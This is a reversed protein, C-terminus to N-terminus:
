PFLEAAGGIGSRAGYSQKEGPKHKIKNTTARENLHDDQYMTRGKKQTARGHKCDNNFSFFCSKSRPQQGNQHVKVLQPSRFPCRGKYLLWYSCASESIVQLQRFLTWCLRKKLFVALLPTSTQHKKLGGSICCGSLNNHFKQWIVGSIFQWDRSWLILLSVAFHKNLEKYFGTLIDNYWVWGTNSLRNHNTLCFSPSSSIHRFPFSALSMQRYLNM